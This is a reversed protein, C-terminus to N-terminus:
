VDGFDPLLPTVAAMSLSKQWATVVTVPSLLAAHFNAEVSKTKM